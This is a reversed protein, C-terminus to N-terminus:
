QAAISNILTDLLDAASGTQGEWSNIDITVM